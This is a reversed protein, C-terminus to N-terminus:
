RSMDHKTLCLVDFNNCNARQPDGYYEHETFILKVGGSLVLILYFINKFSQHRVISAVIFLLLFLKGPIKVM